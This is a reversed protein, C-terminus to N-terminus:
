NNALFSKMESSVEEISHTDLWEEFISSDPSLSSSLSSSSDPLSSSLYSFKDKFSRMQKTIDKGSLGSEIFYKANFKVRREELLLIKAKLKEVEDWKNFRHLLSRQFDYDIKKVVKNEINGFDTIGIRKLFTQYFDSHMVRKRKHLSIFRFADATYYKGSILWNLCDETTKINEWSDYDLGLLECVVPPDNTLNIVNYRSQPKEPLDILKCTPKIGLGDSSFKLGNFSCYACIIAGVFGFSYFFRGSELSNVPIFDVQYFRDELLSPYSFSYCGNTVIVKPNFIDKILKYLDCNVKILIDLDGFSKKKPLSRPVDHEINLGDLVSAIEKRVRNYEELTFRVININKLANGGM